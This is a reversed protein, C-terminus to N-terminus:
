AEKNRIGNQAYKQNQVNDATVDHQVVRHSIGKSLQMEFCPGNSVSVIQVGNVAKSNSTVGERVM